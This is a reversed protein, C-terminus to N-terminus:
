RDSHISEELAAASESRVVISVRRNRPDLPADKMHLRTDAYGRVARVQGPACGGTSWSAGRPTRATPRSSGTATAIATPTRGATPIAKSSSTTRSRASSAARDVVLIRVSEGGAPGHQRQRLLELGLARRARDAAGRHDRDARDSRAADGFDPTQQLDKRIRSRRPSSGSATRPPRRTTRGPRRSRRAARSPARSGARCCGARTSTSSSARIASTARWRRRAGGQEAHRAVDRPLVGDDGHRLGRVGGEVRRRPPRAHGKRRRSSSSPEHEVKVDPRRRRRPRSAAAHRPM